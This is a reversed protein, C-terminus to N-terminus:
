PLEMRIFLNRNIAKVRDKDSGSVRQEVEHIAQRVEADIKDWIAMKQDFDLDPADVGLIIKRWEPVEIDRRSLINFSMKLSYSHVFSRIRVEVAKLVDAFLFDTFIKNQVEADLSMKPFLEEIREEILSTHMRLPGKVRGLILAPGGGPALRREITSSRSIPRPILRPITDLDGYTVAPEVFSTDAEHGNLQYKVYELQQIFMQKRELSPGERFARWKKRVRRLKLEEQRIQAPSPLSPLKIKRLVEPLVAEIQDIVSSCIEDPSADPNLRSLESVIENLPSAM